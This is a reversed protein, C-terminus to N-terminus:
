LACGGQCYSLLLYVRKGEERERGGEMERAGGTWLRNGKEAQGLVNWRDTCTRLLGLPKNISPTEVKTRIYLESEM